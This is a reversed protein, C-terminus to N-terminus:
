RIVFNVSVRVWSAVPRGDINTPEFKWKRVASLAARDLLRHGSSRAVKLASPDGDSTIRAHLTVVGQQGLDVARPPYAPPTQHRYRAEHIVTSENLGADSVAGPQEGSKPNPSNRALDPQLNAAAAKKSGQPATTEISDPADTRAGGLGPPKSPRMDPKRRPVPVAPVPPAIKEPARAVTEVPIPFAEAAPSSPAAIEPRTAMGMTSPKAQTKLTVQLVPIDPASAVPM